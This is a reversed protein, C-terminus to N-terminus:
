CKQGSCVIIQYILFGFASSVVFLIGLAIAIETNEKQKKRRTIEADRARRLEARDEEDMAAARAVIKNWVDLKNAMMFIFQMEKEFEAMRDLELEIEAAQGMNSGKFGPKKTERLSKTIEHKKNFYKGLIPGLSSVDDVTSKTEKIVGVIQKIVGLAALATSISSSSSLIASNSFSICNMKM